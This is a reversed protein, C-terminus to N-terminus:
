VKLSKRVVVTEIVRGTLIPLFSLSGSDGLASLTTIIGSPNPEEKESLAIRRWNM